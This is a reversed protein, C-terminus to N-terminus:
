DNLFKFSFGIEVVQLFTKLNCDLSQLSHSLISEGLFINPSLFQLSIDIIGLLILKGDLKLLSLYPDLPHFVPLTDIIYDLSDAAKSRHRLQISVSRCPM